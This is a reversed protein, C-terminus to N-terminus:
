QEAIVEFVACKVLGFDDAAELELLRVSGWGSIAASEGPGVSATQSPNSGVPGALVEAGAGPVGGAAAGLSLWGRWDGEALATQSGSCVRVRRGAGAQELDEASRLREPDRVMLFTVSGGGGPEPESGDRGASQDRDVELVEIYGWGWVEFKEGPSLGEADFGGGAWAVGFNVEDSNGDGPGGVGVKAGTEDDRWQAGFSIEVTEGVPTPAAPSGDQTEGVATPAAPSGDRVTAQCAGVGL